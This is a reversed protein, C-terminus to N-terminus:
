VGAGERLARFPCASQTATGVTLTECLFMWPSHMSLGIGARLPDRLEWSFSPIFCAFERRKAGSCVVHHDHRVIRYPRYLTKTNEYLDEQDQSERANFNASALM